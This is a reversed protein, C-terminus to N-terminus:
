MTSELRFSRRSTRARSWSRCSTIRRTAIPTPRAAHALCLCRRHCRHSGNWRLQGQRPRLSDRIQGPTYGCNLWPIAAGYVDAASSLKAVLVGAGYYTMAIPRHIHRVSVPPPTVSASATAAADLNAADMHTRAAPAVLNGQYASIHFPTRLAMTTTWVRSISSGEGRASSSHDGGGQQCAADQGQLFLYEADSQLHLSAPEGDRHGVRVRRAPWGRCQVHRRARAAGQGYERRRREPRLTCRIGRDDPLQRLEQQHAIVRGYGAAEIGRHGQLSMHVAIEVSQSSPASGVKIANKVWGSVNGTTTAAQAPASTSACAIAAM